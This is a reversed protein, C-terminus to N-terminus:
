HLNCSSWCIDQKTLRLKTGVIRGKWVANNNDVITWYLLHFLENFSHANHNRNVAMSDQGDDWQLFYKAIKLLVQLLM